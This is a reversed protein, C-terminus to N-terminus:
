EDKKKIVATPTISHIGNNNQYVDYGGHTNSKLTQHPVIAPIGNINEYIDLGGYSNEKITKSPTISPLGNKPTMCKMAEMTINRFCTSKLQV